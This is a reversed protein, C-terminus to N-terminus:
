NVMKYLNQCLIDAGAFEIEFCGYKLDLKSNGGNKNPTELQTRAVTLFFPLTQLRLDHISFLRLIM